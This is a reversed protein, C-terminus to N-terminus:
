IASLTSVEYSRISLILRLLARGGTCLVPICKPLLCRFRSDASKPLAFDVLGWKNFVFNVGNSHAEKYRLEPRRKSDSRPSEYSEALVILSAFSRRRLIPCAAQLGDPLHLRMRRLRVLLDATLECAQASEKTSGADSVKTTYSPLSQCPPVVKLKNM